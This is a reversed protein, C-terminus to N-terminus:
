VSESVTVEYDITSDSANGIFFGETAAAWQPEPGTAVPIHQDSVAIGRSPDYGRWGGGPLYVEAWAHLESTGIRGPEHIYGSVFRSAIELSRSAYMFLVALDRRAGRKSALTESPSMAAWKPFAARAAAVARDVDAPKAESVKCLLSNDFPNLVDFTGGDLADVFENNIFLQTQFKPQTM